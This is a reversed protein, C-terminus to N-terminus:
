KQARFKDLYLSTVFYTSDVPNTSLYGALKAEKLRRDFTRKKVNAVQARRLLTTYDIYESDDILLCLQDLSFSQPRGLKPKRLREPDKDPAVHFRPHKFEVVFREVPPWHRLDVEVSYCKEDEHERFTLCADPARGWVGTGSYADIARKESQNGKSFHQLLDVGTKLKKAFELARNMFDTVVGSDSESLRSGALMRYTPDFSIAIYTGSEIHEALESFDTINFNIGRLSLVDINDLNGGEYSQRILEYRARIETSFLELDIHLVRGGCTKPWVLWGFSNALCFMLDMQAWSKWSKSHGGLLIIEEQRWLGNIIVPPAQGNMQNLAKIAEWVPAKKLEPEQRNIEKNLDNWSPFSSTM